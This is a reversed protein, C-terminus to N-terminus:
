CSVLTLAEYNAFLEIVFISHSEVITSVEQVCSLEIVSLNFSSIGDTESRFKWFFDCLSEFCM